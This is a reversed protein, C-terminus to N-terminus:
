PRLMVKIATREDMATYAAAVDDLPVVTDFVRGPEIEGAVVADRLMPAYRRAPAVGGALNVNRRFMLEVPLEIGHPVGVYGVTGGPRTSRIAQLMSDHTGVCELVRDAGLGDTLERVAQVGEDGRAEVVDTAGFERAVAQREPYRSMAIIRSAGQMRAALVGCLGVAGDGVVVVTHGERVGAQHAAHWGTGMVDSVTLLSALLREDVAREDVGDVPVLTGDARPVRVAEGQGGDVLHGDRDEGGWGGGNLCSTPFGSTCAACDDCSWVFPAIVFQGERLAVESGAQEVVGVFEHGIRRPEEVPNAGRYPWLDSGCVCSAVVRVVADTPLVVRPEPVEELRVDGAAHIVTARM